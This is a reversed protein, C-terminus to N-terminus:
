QNFATYQIPLCVSFYIISNMQGEQWMEYYDQISGNICFKLAVYLIMSALSQKHQYIIKRALNFHTM